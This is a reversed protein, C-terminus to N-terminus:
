DMSVMKVTIQTSVIYISNETVIIYDTDIKYMQKIYSTYEEPNKLLIKTKDPQVGIMAKGVISPLWYDMMIPKDQTCSIKSANQLTRNCPLRNGDDLLVQVDSTAVGTTSKSEIGQKNM